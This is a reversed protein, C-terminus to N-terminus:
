NVRLKRQPRAKSIARSSVQMHVNCIQIAHLVTARPFVLDKWKKLWELTPTMEAQMMNRESLLSIRLALKAEQGM